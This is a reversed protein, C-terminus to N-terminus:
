IQKLYRGADPGLCFILDLASLDGLFGYREGFPQTYPPLDQVRRDKGCNRLDGAGVPANEYRTTFFLETRIELLSFLVELIEANLETLLDYKKEFFRSFHDFYYILFPSRNYAATVSRLHIKQWPLDYAIRVGGTTTRNGYPKVVPVTLKQIGNPGAILCHNRCTQKPYTEHLEIGTRDAKLCASLYTVSPFYSTCTLLTKM